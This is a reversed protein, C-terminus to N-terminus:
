VLTDILVNMVLVTSKPTQAFAQPLCRGLDRSAEENNSHAGPRGAHIMM